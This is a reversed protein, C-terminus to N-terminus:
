RCGFGWPEDSEQVGELVRLEDVEGHFVDGTAVEAGEQVVRADQFLLVRPEVDGLHEDADVLQMFQPVDM